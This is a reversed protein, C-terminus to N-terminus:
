FDTQKILFMDQPLSLYLSGFSVWEILDELHNYIDEDEVSEETPFPRLLSFKIYMKICIVKYLYDCFM